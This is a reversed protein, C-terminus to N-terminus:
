EYIEHHPLCVEFRFVYPKDILLIFNTEGEGEM